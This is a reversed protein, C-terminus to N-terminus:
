LQVCDTLSSAVALRAVPRATAGLTSARLPAEGDECRPTLRDHVSEERRWPGLGLVVSGSRHRGLCPTSARSLRVRWVRQPAATGGHGGTGGHWVTCLPAIHTDQVYIETIDRGRAARTCHLLVYLECVRRPRFPPCVKHSPTRSAGSTCAGSHELPAAM